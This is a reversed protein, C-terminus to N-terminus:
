RKPPHHAAERAHFIASKPRRGQVPRDPGGQPLGPPWTFPGVLVDSRGTWNSVDWVWMGTDRIVPSGFLADFLRRYTHVLDRLNLTFLARNLSVWRVGQQELAALDAPDFVLRDAGRGREISQLGDLLSNAAVFRDWAPPRVRRVWMAHGTLLTKGHLIQLALHHQASAAEPSLPPELLVGDPLKALASLGRHPLSVTTLHAVAPAGQSRLLPGISAAVGLATLPILARWRGRVPTASLALAAFVGWLPVAVALHRVPWWFRRLPAALGYLVTYPARTFAPGLALAAFVLWCLLLGLALRDGRLARRMSLAAGALGLLWLPAVMAHGALRGEGVRFPLVPLTADRLAEPHPFVMLEDGTGPISSWPQIFLVAWPGILLLFTGAFTALLRVPPAGRGRVVLLVGGALVGFLGYYWYFFSTAALLAAAGLARRRDPQALFGLWAALFFLLWFVSVQSFRGSGAEQLTYAWRGTAAAGLLAAWPGAGAARALVWGAVGNATLVALLYGTVGAPWGVALHFPLYLFGEAGNGALLPADGVPWYYRDNHLLSGGSSLQEAVWALLWHNSLCDPHTWNGVLYAGPDRWAPDLQLLALGLSLAFAVIPAFRSV